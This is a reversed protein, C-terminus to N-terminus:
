RRDSAGGAMHVSLFSGRLGVNLSNALTLAECMRHFNTVFQQDAYASVVPLRQSSKIVTTLQSYDHVDGFYM